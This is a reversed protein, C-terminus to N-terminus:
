IENEQYCFGLKYQGFNEIRIRDVTLYFEIIKAPKNASPSINKNLDVM